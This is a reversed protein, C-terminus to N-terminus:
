SAYYDAPMLADGFTAVAFQYLATNNFREADDLVFRIAAKERSAAAVIVRYFHWHEDPRKPRVDLRAGANCTDVERRWWDAIGSPGSMARESRVEEVFLAVFGANVPRADEDRVRAAVARRHAERLQDPSIEWGVWTLMHVRDKSPDPVYCKGRAAELSVLLNTLDVEPNLEENKSDAAAAAASNDVFTDDRVDSSSNSLESGSSSLKPDFNPPAQLPIQLPKVHSKVGRSTPDPPAESKSPSSKEGGKARGSKSPSQKQVRKDYEARSPPSLTVVGGKADVSQVATSGDPALMQYVVISRTEGMRRETEMLYGLKVLKDRAKRITQINLETDLMLEDNTVWAQYDESAWHAYAKLLTKSASDGVVQRKAWMYAYGSM